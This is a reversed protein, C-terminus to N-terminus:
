MVYLPMINRWCYDVINAAM